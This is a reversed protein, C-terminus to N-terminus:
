TKEGHGHDYDERCLIGEFGDFVIVPAFLRKIYRELVSSM